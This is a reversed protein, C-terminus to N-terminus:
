QVRAADNDRATSSVKMVFQGNQVRRDTVLFVEGFSGKGLKRVRTYDHMGMTVPPCLRRRILSSLQLLFFVCVPIPLPRAVASFRLQHDYLFSVDVDCM